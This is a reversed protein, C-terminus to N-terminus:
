DGPTDLMDLCELRPVSHCRMLSLTSSRSLWWHAYQPRSAVSTSWMIALAFPPVSSVLLRTAAHLGHLPLFDSLGSMLFLQYLLRQSVLTYFWLM